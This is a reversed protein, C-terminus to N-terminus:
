DFVYFEEELFNKRQIVAFMCRIFCKRDIGENKFYRYSNYINLKIKIFETIINLDIM